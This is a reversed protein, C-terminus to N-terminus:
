TQTQDALRGIIVRKPPGSVKEITRPSAAVQGAMPKECSREMKASLCAKRLPAGTKKAEGQRPEEWRSRTKTKKRRYSEGQLWAFGLDSVSEFVDM